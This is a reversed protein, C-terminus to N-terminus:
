EHPVIYVLTVSGLPINNQAVVNNGKVRIMYTGANVKVANDTIIANDATALIAGDFWNGRVMLGDRYVSNNNSLNGNIKSNTISVNQEYGMVFVISGLIDCRDIKIDSLNYEATAGHMTFGPRLTRGNELTYFVTCDSCVVNYSNRHIQMATQNAYGAYFKDILIDRAAETGITEYGCYEARCNTVRVRNANFIAFGWAPANTTRGSFDDPFYNINELYVHNVIHDNGMVLLGAEAEDVFASTQGVLKFNELLCSESGAVTMIMPKFVMNDDARHVISDLSFTNALRFVTSYGAGCMHTNSLIKLTGSFLYTGAPFYIEGDEAAALARNIASTDDTVGDGVVGFDYPNIFSNAGSSSNLAIYRHLVISYTQAVAVNAIFYGDQLATLELDTATASANASRLLRYAKDTFAWLRPDGGGTGTITIKEGRKIDTIYYGYSASTGPTIDVTNGESIATKIRYGSIVNKTVDSSGLESLVNIQENNPYPMARTISLASDGFYSNASFNFIAYGDAPAVLTVDIASTSDAVSILKYSADTFAWARGDSNAGTGKYHFKDGKYCPVVRHRATTGFLTDVDVTQGIGVNVNIYKVFMETKLDNTSVPLSEVASKLGGIDERAKADKIPHQVTDTGDSVNVQYLEDGTTVAM